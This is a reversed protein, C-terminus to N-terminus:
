VCTSSACNNREAHVAAPLCQELLNTVGPIVALLLSGTIARFAERRSHLTQRGTVLPERHHDRLSVQGPRLASDRCEKGCFTSPDPGVLHHGGRRHLWALQGLRGRYVCGQYSLAARVQTLGTDYQALLDAKTKIVTSKGNRNSRLPYSVMAVVDKRQDANIAGQFKTFFAKAQDCDPLTCESKAQSWGVAPLALLASFAAVSALSRRSLLVSRHAM